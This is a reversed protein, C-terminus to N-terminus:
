SNISEHPYPYQTSAAGITGDEDVGTTGKSAYKLRSEKGPYQISNGGSISLSTNNNQGQISSFLSNQKLQAQTMTKDDVSAISQMDNEVTSEENDSWDHRVQKAKIAGMRSVLTEVCPQSQDKQWLELIREDRRKAANDRMRLTTEHPDHQELSSRLFTLRKMMMFEMSKNFQVVGQGQAQMSQRAIEVTPLKDTVKSDTLNSPESSLNLATVALGKQDIQHM